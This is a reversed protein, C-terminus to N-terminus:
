PVTFTIVDGNSFTITFTTGHIDYDPCNGTSCEKWTDIDIQAVESPNLIQPVSFTAEDGSGIRPNQQNWVTGGNWQIRKYYATPSSSYEIIMSTVTVPSSGTNQIQFDMQDGSPSTNASGPVYEIRGSGSTGWLFTPFRLETYAKSAPNVAIYKAATDNVGAVVARILHLGMPVSNVFSFEGSRAPSTSSSTMSGSGDPYYITINVNSASDWPPCGTQDRVIGYITNSTLSSNSNAFQKTISSGGGTSSITLGGYTYPNNWADRKYDESNEIFDSRIYPGNWTAYGGPNAVLGDLNPPLSGVDGMYGFDTRVGGSVLRDDGVIAKALMEMEDVTRNFRQNEDSSKLSQVAISALIGIIVIVLILEILTYGRNVM